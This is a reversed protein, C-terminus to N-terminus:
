TGITRVNEDTALNQVLVLDIDTLFHDKMELIKERPADEYNVTLGLIDDSFNRIVEFVTSDKEPNFVELANIADKNINESVM